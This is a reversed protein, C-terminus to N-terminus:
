LYKTIITKILIDIREYDKVFQEGKKTLIIGNSYHILKKRKLDKLHDTLTVYSLGSLFQVRTPVVIDVSM